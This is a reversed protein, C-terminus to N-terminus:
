VSIFAKKLLKLMDSWHMVVFEGKNTAKCIALPLRGAFKSDCLTAETAEHLASILNPQKRNKIQIALPLTQLEIDIGKGEQYELLRKATPDISRLDRAVKREFNHGKARAGKGSVM